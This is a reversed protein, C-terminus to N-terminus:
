HRSFEEFQMGNHIKNSNIIHIKTLSWSVNFTKYLKAHADQIWNQYLSDEAIM